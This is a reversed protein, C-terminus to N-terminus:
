SRTSRRRSPNKMPFMSRRASPATVASASSTPWLRYADVTIDLLAVKAGLDTFKKAMASGIGGSAGTLVVVHDQYNM